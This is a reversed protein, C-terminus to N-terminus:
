CRKNYTYVSSIIFAGFISLTFPFRHARTARRIVKARNGGVFFQSSRPEFCRYVPPHIVHFDVWSPNQKMIEDIRDPGLPAMLKQMKQPSMSIHHYSITPDIFKHDLGRELCFCAITEGVGRGGITATKLIEAGKVAKDLKDMKDANLMKNYKSCQLISALVYTGTLASFCIDM